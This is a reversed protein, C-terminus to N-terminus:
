HHFNFNDFFHFPTIAQSTEGTAINLHLVTEFNNVLQHWWKCFNFTEGCFLVVKIMQPVLFLVPGKFRSLSSYRSDFIPDSSPHFRSHHWPLLLLRWKLVVKKPPLIPLITWCVDTIGFCYTKWTNPRKQLHEWLLGFFYAFKRQAYFITKTSM